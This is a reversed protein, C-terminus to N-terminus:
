LPTLNMAPAWPAHEPVVNVWAGVLAAAVTAFQQLWRFDRGPPVGILVAGSASVRLSIVGHGEGLGRLERRVALVDDRTALVHRDVPPSPLAPWRQRRVLQRLLAQDARDTERLEYGQHWELQQVASLCRVSRGRIHGTVFSGAPYLYREGDLGIQYRNGEADATVPHVDVWGRGPAALEVRTPRWDMEVEFGLRELAALAASEDAADVDVDLDRHRRTQHGALADVGWGGELSMWCGAAELSEVVVLVQEATTGPGDDEVTEYRVLLSRHRWSRLATHGSFTM